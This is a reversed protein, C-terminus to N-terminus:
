GTVSSKTPFSAAALVAVVVVMMGIALLIRPRQRLELPRRLKGRPSENM